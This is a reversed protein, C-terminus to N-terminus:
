SPCTDPLHQLYQVECVKICHVNYSRVLSPTWPLHPGLAHALGSATEGKPEDGVKGVTEHALWQMQGGMEMMRLGTSVDAHRGSYWGAPQWLGLGALAEARSWGFSRFYRRGGALEVGRGAM